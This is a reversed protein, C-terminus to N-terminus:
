LVACVRTDVGYEPDIHCSGQVAIPEEGFVFRTFTIPYVAGDLLGGGGLKPNLRTNESPRAIRFNMYAPSVTIDGITGSDLIQRLKLTQDHFLFVFAEVLQVGARECSESMSNIENASM